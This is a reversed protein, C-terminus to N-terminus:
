GGSWPHGVRPGILFKQPPIWHNESIKLKAWNKKWIRGVSRIPNVVGAGSLSGSIKKTKRLELNQGNLLFLALILIQFFWKRSKRGGSKGSHTKFTRRLLLDVTPKWAFNIFDRHRRFSFTPTKPRPGGCEFLPIQFFFKDSVTKLFRGM